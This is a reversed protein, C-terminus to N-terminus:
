KEQSWKGVGPLASKLKQITEEAEAVVKDKNLLYIEGVLSEPMRLHEAIKQQSLGAKFLSMVTHPADFKAISSERIDRDIDHLAPQLASMLQRYPKKYAAQNRHERLLALVLRTETEDRCIPPAVEATRVTRISLDGVRASRFVDAYVTWGKSNALEELKRLWEKSPIRSTEWRAVTVVATGLRAAFQTQTEEFVTRLRLVAESVEKRASSNKTSM